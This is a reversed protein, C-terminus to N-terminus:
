LNDAFYKWIQMVILELDNFDHCTQSIEIFINSTSIHTLKFKIIENSIM